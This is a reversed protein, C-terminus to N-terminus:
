KDGEKKIEDWLQLLEPAANREDRLMKEVADMATPGYDDFATATMKGHYFRKGGMGYDPAADFYAATAKARCLYDRTGAADGLEFCFAACVGLTAAEWKQLFSRHGPTTLPRFAEIMWELLALAKRGEHRDAYANVFGNAARMLLGIADYLAYSLYPLAEDPKHANCALVIGIEANYHGEANCAKFIELGKEWRGLMVWISAMQIRIGTESEMNEETDPERQGLLGCAREYLELSRELAKPERDHELGMLCYFNACQSVVEFSNPFRLLAKEAERIGEDYRKNLKLERLKKVTEAHSRSCTAYGLLVDVSLAFFDAIDAITGIDPTSTGSEWKSVAGVTVGLAEALQEQTLGHARRFARINESLTLTM